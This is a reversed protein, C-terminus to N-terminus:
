IRIPGEKQGKFVWLRNTLYIWFFMFFGVIFKGIFPSIGVYTELLWLFIYTLLLNVALMTIYRSVSTTVSQEEAKRRYVWYRNLAYSTTLGVLYATVTAWLLGHPLLLTFTIYDSAAVLAGALIYAIATKRDNGTIHVFFPNHYYPHINM